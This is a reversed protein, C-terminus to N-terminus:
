VGEKEKEEEKKTEILEDRNKKSMEELHGLTLRIKLVLQEIKYLEKFAKSVAEDLRDSM